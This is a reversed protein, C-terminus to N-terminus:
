PDQSQVFPAEVPDGHPLLAQRHLPCFVPYDKKLDNFAKRKEKGFEMLTVIDPDHRRVEAAVAKWDKNALWTNFTM